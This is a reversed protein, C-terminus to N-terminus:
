DVFVRRGEGGDDGLYDTGGVPGDEDDEGVGIM